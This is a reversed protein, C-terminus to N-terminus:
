SIPGVGGSPRRQAPSSIDGWIDRVELHESARRALNPVTQPSKSHVSAARAPSQTNSAKAVYSTIFHIFEDKHIVGDGRTDALGIMETADEQLWDLV